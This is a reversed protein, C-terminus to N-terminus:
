LIVARVQRSLDGSRLRATFAMFAAYEDITPTTFPHGFLLDIIRSIQTKAETPNTLNVFADAVHFAERTSQGANNPNDESYDREILAWANGQEIGRNRHLFEFRKERSSYIGILFFGNGYVRRLTKIEDPHKLSDLIYVKKKGETDGESSRLSAIETVAWLALADASDMQERVKNGADMYSKIREFEPDDVLAVGHDIEKLFSSLKVPVAEYNFSRFSDKLEDIVISKESGVPAVLGIILESDFRDLFTSESM